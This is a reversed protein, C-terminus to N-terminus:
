IFLGLSIICAGFMLVSLTGRYLFPLVSLDGVPITQKEPAVNRTECAFISCPTDYSIAVSPNVVFTVSLPQVADEVEGWTPMSYRMHTPLSVRVARADDSSDRGAGLEVSVIISSSTQRGFTQRESVLFDPVELDVVETLMPPNSLALPVARDASHVLEAYTRALEFQEVIITKPDVTVNLIVKTAKNRRTDTPLMAEIILQRHFGAGSLFTSCEMPSAEVYLHLQSSFLTLLQLGFM